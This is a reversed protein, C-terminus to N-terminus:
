SKQHTLVLSRDSKCKEKVRASWLANALGSWDAKGKQLETWTDQLKKQWPKHNFMKWLPAATIQVGDNLDPRWPLQALRLLENRFDQLEREFDFVRELEKEQAKTRTTNQKLRDLDDSIQRLKPEVFDNICSYITQDTLRHYYVWITYSGSSTSLPWYIPARKRNKTYRKLHSAFFGASNSFYDRLTTVQLVHCAYNEFDTNTNASINDLLRRVAEVLDNPNGEDEVLIGNWCINVPYDTDDITPKSVTNKEPLRGLHKRTRLWEESVIKGPTAPLGDDGVLAGLPCVPLPSFATGIKPCLNDNFFMRIDWRGFVVGVLYSLVQEVRVLAGDELFESQGLDDGDSEDDNDPKVRQVCELAEKIDRSLADFDSQSLGFAQAIRSELEPGIISYRNWDTELKRPDDPLLPRLFEQFPEVFSVAERRKNVEFDIFQTLEDVLDNNFTIIPLNQVMSAQFKPFEFKEGSFRAVCSAVLSACYGMLSYTLKEDPYVQSRGATPIVGAPVIYPVLRVSRLMYSFGPRFYLNESQVWKSPSYGKTKVYEKLLDGDFKWDVCLTLPSIWPAAYDTKSYPAWRKGNRFESRVNSVLNELNPQDHTSGTCLREPPVEWLLRLFRTDDGTQLGVRVIGGHGELSPLVSLTKITTNHIWYCYPSSTLRAFEGPDATFLDPHDLGANSDRIIQELAKAKFPTSLLRFFLAPHDIPSKRLVFAATEVMADLVGSGLDAFCSLFGIKNLVRERFASQTGLFFATRSTIAGVLGHPQLLSLAREVFQTLIDGRTRYQDEVYDEARKSGNGFPPNMTIVDFRTRLIDIFALGRKTDESFMRKQYAKVDTLEVYKSLAEYVNDEAELWFRNDLDTTSTQSSSKKDFLNLQQSSRSEQVNTRAKDIMSPIAQEIKLLSGADGAIRMLDFIDAAVSAIARSQITTTLDRILEPEGPLPEACALNSRRIIPRDRLPLNKQQWSKHARLWLSVAAIQVARSDIDIGFLNNEVILRPIDLSFSEESDYAETLPKLGEGRSLYNVGKSRELNWSEQYITEFLDFAYLGFHMSGCAPDLMRIERPDKIQVIPHSFTNASNRVLYSCRQSLETQGGVMDYWLRGLTNDILFQVIYRPTYFQNRVILERSNRPSRSAKRMLDREEKTNYDQYMWGLTEDEAWLDALDPNNILNLLQLLAQERPFLLRFQSFRDFLLKLDVSLEDFISFLYNRYAEGTEGLGSGCLRLYLQFGKSQYGASVSEILLGRAEAMRLASLSNLITFAQERVIRGLSEQINSSADTAVYHSLTERLLRATELRNDDLHRLEHLPSISGSSPDMGYENQLQRTFEEALLTRSDTVLGQLRNRTSQDFVM